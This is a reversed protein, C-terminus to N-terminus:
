APVPELTSPRRALRMSGLLVGTVVVAGAALEFPHPQEGLILWATSFGVVPVLLSFPAVTSAPYKSLLTTWLGSGVVTALLSTYALGALASPGTPSELVTAVASWGTTPGEFLASAAFMPLPPVIAIWLSLHLPNPAEAKRSCLNGLAWSFAGCLTILMPLLTATQSRHWGIAVMGLVATTIGLLQVGTIKERLLLAGLAVTFPASGQQVLSALGTPMGIKMAVFLFAFQLTGFFLGYGILWRWRVKPRPVFLLIPLLVAFRLGAFFFPPFHELGQDLAIFNGGWFVAVVVALLRDRATM